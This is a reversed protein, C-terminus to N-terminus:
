WLMKMIKKLDTAPPQSHVAQSLPHLAGRACALGWYQLFDQKPLLDDRDEVEEGVYDVELTNQIGPSFNKM